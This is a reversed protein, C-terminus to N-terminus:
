ARNSSISKLLTTVCTDMRSEQDHIWSRYSDFDKIKEDYNDICLTLLRHIADVDFKGVKYEELIPVDDHYYAAGDMNTIVICGALAAERPLRDMGPHPGFDIYIKADQLLKTVDTPSIRKQISGIPTFTFKASSRRIIADTYHVGKFPNYLIQLKRVNNTTSSTAKETFTSDDRHRYQPIFETMPLIQSNSDSNRAMNDNLYCKAYESQYLHLIDKRNWDKFKANNNNVSLWWIATQYRKLSNNNDGQHQQQSPQFSDILHTWCEPWIILSDNYIQDEMNNTDNNKNKDDNMPFTTAIKLNSYISEYAHLIKVNNVHEVNVVDSGHIRQKERVFLLYAQVMNNNQNNHDNNKSLSSLSNIKHCLQHMAEPGGTQVNPPCALYITSVKHKPFPFNRQHNSKNPNFNSISSNSKQKKTPPGLPQQQQEHSVEANHKLKSLMSQFDM